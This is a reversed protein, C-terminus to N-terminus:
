LRTDPVFNNCRYWWKGSLVFSISGRIIPVADDPSNGCMWKGWESKKDM